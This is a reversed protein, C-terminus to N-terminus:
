WEFEGGADRRSPTSPNGLGTGPQAGPRPEPPPSVTPRSAGDRPSAELLAPTHWTDGVLELVPRWAPTARAVAKSAMLEELEEGQVEDKELLRESLVRVAPENARLLEVAQQKCESLLAGIAKRAEPNGLIAGLPGDNFGSQPLVGYSILDEGMGLLGLMIAAQQTAHRLDSSPGTTTEGFWIEEAALGGLAVVIDRRMDERLETHREELPTRYVVGLTDRRKIISAVQIQDDLELIYALVAHGAEHFATMQRDRASTKTAEKLGIEETVKATWLDDFNLKDRGAVLAFILAENVLNKIQAPSFGYTARALRATDVQEHPVKDLYYQLIDERGPGTPLGVHLKRDFRGPRLLAPDLTSAQNTAGIVMVNYQPVKPKGLHLLRKIHRWLGRPMIMGDMQILLENVYMGGMGGMGPAMIIRLPGKAWHRGTDAPSSATSVGGRSGGVADLEDLFIVAGGYKRSLKRAKKFLRMIRLNGIGMFMNNFSTGSAYVFPVNASGAIAKGLLTKGTGPPGEFLVGHPPYGGADRFKKFGQFLTLAEKTSEVIEPQGRVDDFGVDYERPYIVYTQGRALFWFIAVFQLVMASMIFVLYLAMGMIAFPLAFTAKWLNFEPALPHDTRILYGRYEPAVRPDGGLVNWWDLGRNSRYMMYLIPILLAYLIGFILLLRLIKRITYRLPQSV